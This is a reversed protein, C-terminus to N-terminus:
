VSVRTVQTPPNCRCEELLGVGLGNPGDIKNIVTLKFSQCFPVLSNRDVGGLFSPSNRRFNEVNGVLACFQPPSSEDVSSRRLFSLRSKEFPYM